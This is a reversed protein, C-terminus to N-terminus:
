GDRVIRWVRRHELQAIGPAPPDIVSRVDELPEGAPLQDDDDDYVIAAVLMRELEAITARPPADIGLEALEDRLEDKKTM